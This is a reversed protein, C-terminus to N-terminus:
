YNAKQVLSNDKDTLTTLKKFRKTEGRTVVVNLKRAMEPLEGRAEILARIVATLRPVGWHESKCTFLRQLQKLHKEHTICISITKVM